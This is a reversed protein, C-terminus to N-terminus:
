ERRIKGAIRKAALIDGDQTSKDGGGLLIVIERGQRSFYVRYGPGHDIRLEFVGNGLPKCDGFNGVSLRRMRATIVAQGMRDKLGGIWKNFGDTQRIEIVTM